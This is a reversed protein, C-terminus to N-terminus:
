QNYMLGSGSDQQQEQFWKQACVQAHIVPAHLWRDLLAYGAFVAVLVLAAIVGRTTNAQVHHGTARRVAYDKYYPVEGEM